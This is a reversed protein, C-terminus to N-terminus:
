HAQPEGVKTPATGRDGDRRRADETWSATLRRAHPGGPGGGLVPRAGSEHM